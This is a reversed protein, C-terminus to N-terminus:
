VGQPESVKVHEHQCSPCYVATKGNIRLEELKTECQFCPEGTRGTVAYTHQTAQSEDIAEHLWEVMARYLEAWDEETLTEIRVSPLLGARFSIEDAILPTLGAILAPNTLATKLSSRRKAFRRKFLEFTLNRSLPEPGWAKLQEDLEKATIWQLSLTRAGAIRWSGQEFKIELQQKSSDVEAEADDHSFSFYADVGVHLLLRKGDDLHFIFAKGRREVFLLQRGTVAASLEGLSINIWSEKQVQIECIRQGVFHQDIKRRQQEIQPLEIM